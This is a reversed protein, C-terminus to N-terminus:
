LRYGTCYIGPNPQGRVTPQGQRGIFVETRWVLIRMVRTKGLRDDRSIAHCESPWLVYETSPTSWYQTCYLTRVPVTRGLSLNKSSSGYNECLPLSLLSRCSGRYDVTHWDVPLTFSARQQQKSAKVIM